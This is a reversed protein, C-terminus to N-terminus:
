FCTGFALFGLPSSLLLSLSEKELGPELLFYFMEGRPYLIQPTLKEEARGEGNM